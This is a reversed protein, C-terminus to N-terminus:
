LVAMRQRLWAMAMTASTESDPVPLAEIGVSGSYGADTLAALFDEMPLHGAGPALRNSDALHLHEVLLIRNFVPLGLPEIEALEEV